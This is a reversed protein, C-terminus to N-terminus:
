YLGIPRLVQYEYTYKGLDLVVVVLVLAGRVWNNPVHVVEMSDLKCSPPRGKYVEFM